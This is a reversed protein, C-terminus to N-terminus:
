APVTTKGTDAGTCDCALRASHQMRSVVPRYEGCHCEKLVGHCECRPEDESIFKGGPCRPKESARFGRYSM